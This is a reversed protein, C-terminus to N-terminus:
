RTLIKIIDNSKLQYDEGVRKGTRADIAGIFKKGIDEHIKYALDKATSGNPILYADPLVNNNHDSFKTTNAVPYVVIYNLLEFVARNLCEQIGTSKWKELVNQILKLAKSQKEDLNKLIEFKSSGSYKILGNKDALKLAVELEASCPIILKDPFEKKLNEFNKEAEPLDIKNAAILIPKTQKRLVTAFKKITNDNIEEIESINLAENVQNETIGLGTVQDSMIKILDTKEYKKIREYKALGKKLIAYFWEDIEQELFEIDEKPEHEKCPRGEEDTTGSCDLVHILVSAQRLDDLFKNGLGKGLHAGPVLGAVDILQVPIFRVGNKCESNQPNCKVNLEKCLCTTTVYGTAINPEITTFPYNAIKVDALTLAKLMTSKGSNPKGVLGVLLSM